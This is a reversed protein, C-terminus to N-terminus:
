GIRSNIYNHVANILAEATDDDLRNCRAEAEATQTIYDFVEWCDAVLYYINNCVAYMSATNKAKALTLLENYYKESIM